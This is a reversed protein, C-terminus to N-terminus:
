SEAPEHEDAGPRQASAWFDYFNFWNYPALRCHDELQRVYRSVYPRASELRNGRQLQINDGLKHIHVQYLAKGRYLTFITYVPAKLLSSIIIPGAPFLAPQGLFDIHLNNDDSVSRDALIAISVGEDLLAKARIWADPDTIEIVNRKLSPAQEALVQMIKSSEARHMMAAVPINFRDGTLRMAHFSGLHAGLFISGRGAHTDARIVKRWGNDCIEIDFLDFRNASIFVNDLLTSAFAYYHNFVERFGPRAPMARRLFLKSARYGGRSFIVFYLTIPYLLGRGARRGLTRALMVILRITALNSREKKDVWHSM